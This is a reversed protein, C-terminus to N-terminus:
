FLCFDLEGVSNDDQQALFRLAAIEAYTIGGLFYVLTVSQSNNSTLSSGKFFFFFLFTYKSLTQKKNKLCCVCM